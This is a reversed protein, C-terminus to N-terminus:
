GLFLVPFALYDYLISSSMATGMSLGGLCVLLHTSLLLANEKSCFYFLMSLRIHFQNHGPTM